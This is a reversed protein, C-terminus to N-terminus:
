RFREPWRAKLLWVSARWDGADAARLVTALLRQQIEDDDEPLEAIGVAPDDVAALRRRVVHGDTLWRSVTRASVGASAGAIDLPAGAALAREIADRREDTLSSPRAVVGVIARDSPREPSAWSARWERMGVTGAPDPQEVAKPTRGV